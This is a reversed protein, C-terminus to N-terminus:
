YGTHFDQGVGWGGVELKLLLAQTMFDYNNTLVPDPGARISGIPCQPGRLSAEPGSNDFGPNSGLDVEWATVRKRLGLPFYLSAAWPQACPEPRQLHLLKWNEHHPPVDCRGPKKLFGEWGLKSQHSSAAGAGASQHWTLQCNGWMRTAMFGWTLLEM